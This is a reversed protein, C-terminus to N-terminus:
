PASQVSAVRPQHVSIIGTLIAAVDLAVQARLADEKRVVDERAQNTPLSNVSPGCAASAIVAAVGVTRAVFTLATGGAMDTWHSRRQTVYQM